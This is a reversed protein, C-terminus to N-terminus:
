FSRLDILIDVLKVIWLYRHFDRQTDRFHRKIIGKWKWKVRPMQFRCLLKVTWRTFPLFHQLPELSPRLWFRSGFRKWPYNRLTIPHWCTRLSPLINAEPKSLAILNSWRWQCNRTWSISIPVSFRFVVSREILSQMALIRFGLGFSPTNILISHEWYFQCSPFWWWFKALCWTDQLQLEVKEYFSRAVKWQVHCFRCLQIEFRLGSHREVAVHIWCRWRPIWLRYVASSFKNNFVRAIREGLGSGISELWPPLEWDVYRGGLVHRPCSLQAVLSRCLQFHFTPPASPNHMM